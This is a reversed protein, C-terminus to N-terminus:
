RPLGSSRWGHRAGGAWTSRPETVPSGGGSLAGLVVVVAAVDEATAGPSLVEVAVTEPGRAADDTDSM